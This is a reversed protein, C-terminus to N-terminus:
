AMQGCVRRETLVTDTKPTVDFGMGKGGAYEKEWTQRLSEPVDAELGAQITPLDRVVNPNGARKGDTFTIFYPCGDDVFLKGGAISFPYAQCMFPRRSYIRCKADGTLHTCAGCATLKYFHGKEDMAIRAANEDEVVMMGDGIRKCCNVKCTDCPLYRSIAKKWSKM